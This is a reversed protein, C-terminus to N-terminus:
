TASRRVGADVRHAGAAEGPEAPREELPGRDLRRLRDGDVDLGVVEREIGEEVPRDGLALLRGGVRRHRPEVVEQAEAAHDEEVGLVGIEAAGEAARGRVPARELADGTRSSM